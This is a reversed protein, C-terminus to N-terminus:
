LSTNWIYPKIKIYSLWPIQPGFSIKLCIWIHTKGDLSWGKRHGQLGQVRQFGRGKSGILSRSDGAIGFDELILNTLFRATFIKWMNKTVTKSPLSLNEQQPQTETSHDYKSWIGERFSVYCRFIPTGLLFTTNWGDTTEKMWDFFVKLSAGFTSMTFKISNSVTSDTTGADLLGIGHGGRYSGTDSKFCRPLGMDLQLNASGLWGSKVLLEIRFLVYVNGSAWYITYKGVNVM